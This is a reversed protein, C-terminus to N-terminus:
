LLTMSPGVKDPAVALVALHPTGSLQSADVVVQVDGKYGSLALNAVIQGGAETDAGIVAISAPRFLCAPDFRGSTNFRPITMTCQLMLSSPPAAALQLKADHSTSYCNFTLPICVSTLDPVSPGPFPRM